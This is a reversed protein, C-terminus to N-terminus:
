SGRSSFIMNLFPDNLQIIRRRRGRLKAIHFSVNSPSCAGSTGKLAKQKYAKTQWILSLHLILRDSDRDKFTLGFGWKDSAM